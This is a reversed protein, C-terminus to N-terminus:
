ISNEAYQECTMDGQQKFIIPCLLLFSVAAFIIPVALTVLNFGFFVFMTPVIIALMCLAAFLRSLVKEKRQRKIESCKENIQPSLQKILMDCEKTM